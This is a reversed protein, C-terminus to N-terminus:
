TSTRVLYRATGGPSSPVVAKDIKVVKTHRVYTFFSPLFFMRRRYQMCSLFIKICRVNLFTHVLAYRYGKCCNQHNVVRSVEKEKYRTVLKQKWVPCRPPVGLCWTYEKVSVSQLYTVNVTNNQITQEICVNDGVLPVGDSGGVSNSSDNDPSTNVHTPLFTLLTALAYACALGWGPHM